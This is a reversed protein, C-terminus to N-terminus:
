IKLFRYAFLSYVKIANIFDNIEINENISHATSGNGPGLLVTKNCFGSNRIYHADASAPYIM